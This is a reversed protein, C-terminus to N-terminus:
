HDKFRRMWSPWDEPQVGGAKTWPGVTDFERNWKLTWLEKLGVKRVSWDMFLVNIGGNHRNMCVCSSVADPCGEYAPPPTRASPFWSSEHACDSFFPVSAAGRVDPTTWHENGYEGCSGVLGTYFNFGYSGVFTETKDKENPGLPVPTAWATFTGGDSSGREALPGLMLVRTAVPCLLLDRIESGYDRELLRLPYTWGMAPDARFLQEGEDGIARAGFLIGWQRLNSHCRAAAAQRRVRQLTPLLVAMLLAVLSIVVLLEILTFAKERSM